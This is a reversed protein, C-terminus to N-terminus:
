LWLRNSALIHRLGRSSINLATLSTSSSTEAPTIMKLRRPPVPTFIPQPLSVHIISVSLLVGIGAVVVNV